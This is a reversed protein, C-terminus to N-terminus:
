NFAIEVDLNDNMLAIYLFICGSITILLSGIFSLTVLEKKKPTDSEKLEKLSKISDKLFYIYVILLVSFILINVKQYKERSVNDNYLFYKRELSNSFFSLFIIGIYVVWIFDEIDLSKLRENIDESNSM